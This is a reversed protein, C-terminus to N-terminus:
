IKKMQYGGVKQHTRPSFSEFMYCQVSLESHDFDRFANRKFFLIEIQHLYIFVINIINLSCTNEILIIIVRLLILTSYICM